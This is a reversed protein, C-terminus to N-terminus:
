RSEEENREGDASWPRSIMTWARDVAPRPDSWTGAVAAFAADVLGAQLRDGAQYFARATEGMQNEAASSVADLSSTLRQWGDEADALKRVRGSGFMSLAWPLRLLSKTLRHM